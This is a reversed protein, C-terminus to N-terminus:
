TPFYVSILNLSYVKNGHYFYIVYPINNNNEYGECRANCCTLKKIM